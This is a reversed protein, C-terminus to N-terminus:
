LGYRYILWGIMVFIVSVVLSLPSSVSSAIIIYCSVAIYLLPVVPYGPTPFAPPTATRIRLIYISIAAMVMFILNTIVLHTLIGAFTGWFLVWAVALGSQVVISRAPTHFRADKKVLFPFFLGDEAMAQYMRPAALTFSAVTGAASIMIIVPVFKGLFTSVAQISDTAPAGSAIIEQVPLLKLYAYNAAIYLLSVLLVGAVMALAVNRAPNQTDSALFTAYQIGAYSFSVGALAVGFGQLLNGNQSTETLHLHFSPSAQGMVIGVVIILLIGGIKLVTLVRTSWDGWKLGLCNILCLISILAVAVAQQGSQGFATIRPFFSAAYQAFGLSIAAIAGSVLVSLYFWGFLFGWFDGYTEKLWFYIGAKRPFRSAIEGFTLAAALTSLGGVLWVVLIWGPSPLQEAIFAPTLFIGIGICSGAVVMVLGFLSLKHPM